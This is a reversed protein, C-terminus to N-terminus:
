EIQNSVPVYDLQQPLCATVPPKRKDVNEKALRKIENMMLKKEYKKEEKVIEQRMAARENQQRNIADLDLHDFIHANKTMQEKLVTFLAALDAVNLEKSYDLYVNSYMYTKSEGGWQAQVSLDIRHEGLHISVVKGTTISEDVAGTQINILDYSRTVRETITIKELRKASIKM